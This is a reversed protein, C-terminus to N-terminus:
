QKKLTETTPLKTHSRFADRVQRAGVGLPASLAARSPAIAGAPRDISLTYSGGVRDLNTTLRLQYYDAAPATFTLLADTVGGGNDDSALLTATMTSADVKYLEIKADFATSRMTIQAQEGAKLYVVVKDYWRESPCDNGDLVQSTSTGFTAFVDQCATVAGSWSKTTIHYPGKDPGFHTAGVLFTGAGGLFRIRSNANPLGDQDFAIVDSTNTYTGRYLTLYPDFTWAVDSEYWIEMPKSGTLSVSWLDIFSNNVADYVCRSNTVDGSASGPVAITGLVACPDTPPPPPATVTASFTQTPLTGLSAVVNQTGASPGFTWSTSAFGNADSVSSTPNVSSGNDPAFSVSGGSVPNSYQDRVYIGLAQSTGPAGGVAEQQKILQSAPGAATTVSFSASPVGSASATLSMTGVITSMTWTTTADGSANSTVSPAPVTSGNTPAFSVAVGSVPNSYSDQVNVGVNQLTAGATSNAPYALKVFKVPPGVLATAALGVSMTGVTATLSMPGPVTAMKWMTTAVGQADTTGSTANVSSGNAPAFSVAVGSLPNGYSDTVTVGVPQTLVSGVTGSQGDGIKSPTTAAGVVATASFTLPTLSGLSATLSAGGPTHAMTWQTAAQGSANTAASAPAVSSGNGPTFSVSAGNVLNGYSDKVLVAVPVPLAGGVPGSQADGSVKTMQTPAGPTATVVFAVGSMSDPKASLRQEGPTRGLMWGGVTAIGKADTTQAAGSITGGGNVVSFLIAVGAVPKGKKDKVIV